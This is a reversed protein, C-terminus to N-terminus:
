FLGCVLTGLLDICNGSECQYHEMCPSGGQLKPHCHNDTALGCYMNSPCQVHNTCLACTGICYRSICDSAIDCMKGVQCPSCSGGCDLDTEDGNKTGDNCSVPVCVFSQCFSGIPCPTSADDICEVCNGVGNCYRGEGINCPTLITKNVIACAGNVCARESCEADQGPCKSPVCPEGGSGGAGGQAGGTAGAGAVAGSGGSAAPLPEGEEMGFIAACGTALLTSAAALWIDSRMRRM